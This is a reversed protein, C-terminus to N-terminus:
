HSLEKSNSLEGKGYRTEEYDLRSDDIADSLIDIKFNNLDIIKGRLMLDTVWWALVKLCKINRDGYSIGGRIEPINSKLKCWEKIFKSKWYLVSEQSYHGDDLM